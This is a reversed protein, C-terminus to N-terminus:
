QDYFSNKMEGLNFIAMEYYNHTKIAPSIVLALDNLIKRVLVFIFLPNVM